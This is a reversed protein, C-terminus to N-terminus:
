SRLVSPNLRCFGRHSGIQGGALVATLLPLFYSLVGIQLHARIRGAQGPLGAAPTPIVFASAAPRRIIISIDHPAPLNGSFRICLGIASTTAQNAIPPGTGTRPSTTSAPM